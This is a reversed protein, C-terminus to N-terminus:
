KQSKKLGDVEKMLKDITEQQQIAYLTLEEVKQLLKTTADALGVGNEKVEAESPMGPLHKHEDIHAKVEQLTPLKYDSRFVFDAWGTEVRIEKARITGNVDLKYAPAETGIGVNGKVLLAGDLYVDKNWWSTTIVQQWSNWTSVDNSKRYYIGNGNFNLQHAHGWGGDTHPSLTLNIGQYYDPLGLATTPKVEAIVSPGTSFPADNTTVNTKNLVELSTAKQAYSSISLLGLVMSLYIAKKM